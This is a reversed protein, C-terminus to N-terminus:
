IPKQPWAKLFFHIPIITVWQPSSPPNCLFHALPNLLFSKVKGYISQLSAFSLTVRSFCGHVLQRAFPQLSKENETDKKKHILETPRHGKGSFVLLTMAQSHTKMMILKKLSM